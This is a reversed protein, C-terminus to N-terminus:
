SLGKKLWYTLAAKTPTELVLVPAVLQITYDDEPSRTITAFTNGVADAIKMEGRKELVVKNSTGDVDILNFAGKHSTKGKKM